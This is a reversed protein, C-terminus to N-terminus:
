WIFSRSQSHLVCGFHGSTCNTEWRTGDVNIPICAGKLICSRLVPGQEPTMKISPDVWWDPQVELLGGTCVVGDSPCPYCPNTPTTPNVFTGTGCQTCETSAAEPAIEGASADCQLCETAGSVQTYSGPPCQRCSTAGTEASYTGPSCPRCVLQGSDLGESRLYEGPNCGGFRLHLASSVLPRGNSSTAELVIPLTKGQVQMGRLVAITASGNISQVVTSGFLGSKIAQLVAAGYQTRVRDVLTHSWEQSPADALRVKVPTPPHTTVHESNADRVYVIPAPRIDQLPQQLAATLEHANAVVLTRADSAVNVGYPAQNLAHGEPDRVPTRHQPANVAREAVSSALSPAVQTDFYVGGGGLTAMNRTFTCDLFTTPSQLINANDTAVSSSSSSAALLAVAGGYGAVVTNNLFNVKRFLAPQLLSTVLLGGGLCGHAARTCQEVMITDRASLVFSSRTTSQVIGPADSSVNHGAIATNQDFLSGSIAVESGQSLLGGGGAQLAVNFSFESGRVLTRDSMHLFMGGGVGAVNASVVSHQLDVNCSVGWFGGGHELDLRWSRITRTRAGSSTSGNRAHRWVAHFGQRAIAPQAAESAIHLGQGVANNLIWSRAVMVGSSGICYCGGGGIPEVLERGPVSNFSISSSHIVAKASSIALGAGREQAINHVFHSAIVQLSGCAVFGGAGVEDAYNHHVISHIIKLAAQSSYFAAGSVARTKTIEVDQPGFPLVDLLCSIWKLLHMSPSIFISDASPAAIFSGITDHLHVSFM